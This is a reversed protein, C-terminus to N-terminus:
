KTRVFWLMSGCSDCTYTELHHNISDFGFISAEPTNSSVQHKWFKSNNCVCCKIKKGKLIVEAAKEKKEGDKADLLEMKEQDSMKNFCSQCISETVFSLKSTYNKGCKKCQM